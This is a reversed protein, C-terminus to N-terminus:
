TRAMATSTIMRTALASVAWFRMSLIHSPLPDFLDFMRPYFTIKIM